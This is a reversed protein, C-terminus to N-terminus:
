EAQLDAKLGRHNRFQPSLIVSLISDQVGAGPKSQMNTQLEDILPDDSVRVSRGLAYGLLKRHFQRTFESRKTRLLYERLGDM